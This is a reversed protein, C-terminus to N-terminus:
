VPPLWKKWETIKRLADIPTLHNPDVKQLDAIVEDEKLGDSDKTAFLYLQKPKTTKQPKPSPDQKEMKALMEEASKIVTYPLGALKAVHIGYSKDAAGPLIRHLFVIGDETEQVAVNCNYAGPLKQELETLEFYHTAFLTKARKDSQKLLFEAVAWAISIGDYTSTGRGIEDLIVLSRQTVQNLIAATETMEVMFTSKGRNLDDSAGIRSLVKDIIGIHAKKAPVMSGMQALIVLLAVQRLFTSKGAMNPGTILHLRKDEDFLVDNPIFNGSMLSTEITPHRGQTIEFHDSDDVIPRVYGYKKGVISLSLLFDISAISKASEQIDSQFSIIKQRLAELLEKELCAIKEEASLVKYEYDKLEPSVFREGNVLTQRKDFSSPMKEAQARSVEIYYGFANTFGVKLTKIGLTERLTNQYNVIWGESNDKMSYLSDLQTHYGHTFIPADGVRMAPSELLAQKLESTLAKLDAIKDACHNLLSDSTSRLLTQIGPLQELSLRLAVFDRPTSFSTSIKASLREIDRIKEMPSSLDERLKSSNYFTQVADQRRHIENTSLLPHTISHKLLRAGMPTYTHDLLHFLSFVKGYENWSGTLELHRQTAQDISLYASNKQVTLKQIHETPLLLDNQIYSLLAGAANIAATMSSTGFGDLSHVKFHKLLLDLAIQHDFNWEEKVTICCSSLSSYSKLLAQHNKECKESLIMEKSELRLLEDLLEKEEEIQMLRFEGTTLDVVALGFYSNLKSLCVLFNNAKESLLQSSVISGPTIVRVIERKVIGKVDKPNEMQEVVAVKYGKAVLRDIYLESTHFPIGSMPIEQRKTLTLDLEKSLLAADEHFAEYFDGLRFLVIADKAQSKCKHWQMMMPSTKNEYSITMFKIGLIEEIIALRFESQLPFDLLLVEAM